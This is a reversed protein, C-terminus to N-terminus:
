NRLITPKKLKITGKLDKRIVLEGLLYGNEIEYKKPGGVLARCIILLDFYLILYREKPKGNVYRNM